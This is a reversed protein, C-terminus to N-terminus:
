AKYSKLLRCVYRDVREKLDYAGGSICWDYVVGRMCVMFFDAMERASDECTIAGCDKAQQLLETLIPLMGRTGERHFCTNDPNYRVRTLEFSNYECSYAAYEYFFYRIKEEISNQVLAPRVSNEFYDDAFRYTEYFVELKSHYYNYFSGISVGAERVIDRVTISDFSQQELLRMAADFLARKTQEAQLQRSTKKEAM